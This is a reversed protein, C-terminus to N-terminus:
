GRRTVAGLSVLFLRRANELIDGCHLTLMYIPKKCCKGLFFGGLNTIFMVTFIFLCVGNHIFVIFHISVTIVFVYYYIYTLM